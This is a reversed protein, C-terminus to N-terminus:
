SRIVMNVHSLGTGCVVSSVSRQSMVCVCTIIITSKICNMCYYLKTFRHSITLLCVYQWYWDELLYIYFYVWWVTICTKCYVWWVTICTKCYVWWVTIIVKIACIHLNIDGSVCYIIIGSELPAYSENHPVCIPNLYAFHLVTKEIHMDTIFLVM